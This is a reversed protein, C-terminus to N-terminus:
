MLAISLPMRLTSRGLHADRGVLRIAAGLDEVGDAQRAFEDVAIEGAGGGCDLAGPEVLDRGLGSLAMALGETCRRHQAVREGDAAIIQQALAALVVGPGELGHAVELVGRAAVREVDIPLVRAAIFSSEARSSVMRLRNSRLDASSSPRSGTGSSSTSGALSITLRKAVPAM